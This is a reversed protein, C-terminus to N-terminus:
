LLSSIHHVILQEENSEFIETYTFLQKMFSKGLGLKENTYWFTSIDLGGGARRPELMAIKGKWEPNLLDKWSKIKSPALSDRKYVLAVQVRNGYVFNYKEADDSFHL